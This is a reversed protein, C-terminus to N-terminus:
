VHARGIERIEMEIPTPTLIPWFGLQQTGQGDALWSPAVHLAIALRDVTNRRLRQTQKAGDYLVFRALTTYSVGALKSLTAVQERNCAGYRTSVLGVLRERLSTAPENQNRANRETM